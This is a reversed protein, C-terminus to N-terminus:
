RNVHGYDSGHGHGRDMARAAARVAGERRDLPRWAQPRMPHLSITDQFQRLQQRGTHSDYSIFSILSLPSFPLSLPRFPLSLPSLFFEFNRSCRAIFLDVLLMSREYQRYAVLILTYSVTIGLAKLEAIEETVIDEFSRGAYASMGRVKIQEPTGQPDLCM